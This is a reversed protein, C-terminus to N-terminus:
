SKDLMQGDTGYDKFKERVQGPTAATLDLEGIVPYYAATLIANLSGAWSDTGVTDVLSKLAPATAEGPGILGLFRLASKVQGKLGGPYTTPMITRDIRNPVGASKLHDLFSTFTAWPIYPPLPREPEPNPM